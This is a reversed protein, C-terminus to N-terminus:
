PVRLAPPVGLSMLSGRRTPKDEMREKGIVQVHCTRELPADYEMFYITQRSGKVMKGNEIPFVCQIGGLISKLHADAEPGQGTVRKATIPV